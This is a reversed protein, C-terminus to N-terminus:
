IICQCSTVKLIGSIILICLGNDTGEQFSEVMFNFETYNSNNSISGFYFVSNRTESLNKPLKEM